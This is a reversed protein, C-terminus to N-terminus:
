LVGGLYDAQAKTLPGNGGAMLAVKIEDALDHTLGDNEPTWNESARRHQDILEGLSPQSLIPRLFWGSSMSVKTPANM